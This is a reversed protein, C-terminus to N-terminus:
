YIFLQNFPFLRISNFSSVIFYNYPIRMSLEAIDYENRSKEMRIVQQITYWTDLQIHEEGCNLEVTWLIVLIM